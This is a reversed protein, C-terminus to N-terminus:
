YPPSQSSLAVPTLGTLNTLSGLEVFEFVQENLTTRKRGGGVAGTYTGIRDNILRKHNIPTTDTDSNYYKTHRQAMFCSKICLFTTHQQLEMSNTHVTFIYYYNM